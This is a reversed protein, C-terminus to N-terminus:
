EYLVFYASISSACMALMISESLLVKISRWKVAKNLEAGKMKKFEHFEKKAKFTFFYIASAVSLLLMAISAGFFRWEDEIRQWAFGVQALFLLVVGTYHGYMMGDSYPDLYFTGIMTIGFTAILEIFLHAPVKSSQVIQLLVFTLVIAFYYTGLRALLTKATGGSIASFESVSSIPIRKYYFPCHAVSMRAWINEGHEKDHPERCPPYIRSRIRFLSEATLFFWWVHGVYGVGFLTLVIGVIQAATCGAYACAFAVSVALLQFLIHTVGAAIKENVEGLCPVCAIITITADLEYERAKHPDM